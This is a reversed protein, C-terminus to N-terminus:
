PKPQTALEHVYRAVAAMEEPSMKMKFSLMDENKGRTLVKVVSDVSHSALFAADFTVVKPYKKKMKPTPSGLPGHCTKCYEAYLAKGDPEQVPATSRTGGASLLVAILFVRSM